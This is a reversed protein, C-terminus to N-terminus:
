RSNRPYLKDLHNKFSDPMNSTIAMQLIQVQDTAINAWQSSTLDTQNRDIGPLEEQLPIPIETKSNYVGEDDYVGIYLGSQDSDNSGWYYIVLAKRHSKRYEWGICLGEDDYYRYFHAKLGRDQLAGDAAQRLINLSTNADTWIESLTGGIPIVVVGVEEHLYHKLEEAWIYGKLLDHFNDSKVKGTTVLSKFLTSIQGELSCALEQWTFGGRLYKGRDNAKKKSNGDIVLDAFQDRHRTIAIVGGALKSETSLIEKIERVEKKWGLYYDKAQDDGWGADLKCEVYYLRNPIGNSSHTIKMDPQRSESFRREQPDQRKPSIDASDGKSPLKFTYQTVVETIEGEGIHPIQMNLKQYDSLPNTKDGRSSAADLIDLYWARLIYSSNLIGGLLETLFNETQSRGTASWTYKQLRKTVSNRM